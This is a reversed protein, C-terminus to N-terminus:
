SLRLMEDKNSITGEKDLNKHGHQSLNCTAARVFQFAMKPNAHDYHHKADAYQDHLPQHKSNLLDFQILWCQWLFMVFVVLRGISEKPQGLTGRATEVGRGGSGQCASCLDWSSAPEIRPFTRPFMAFVQTKHWTLADPEMFLEQSNNREATKFWTLLNREWSRRAINGPVQEFNGPATGPFKRGHAWIATNLCSCPHSKHTLFNSGSIM